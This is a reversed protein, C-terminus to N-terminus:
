TAVHKTTRQAADCNVASRRWVSRQRPRAEFAVIKQMEHNRDTLMVLLLLVENRIVQAIAVVGGNRIV